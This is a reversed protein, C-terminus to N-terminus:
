LDGGLPRIVVEEMMASEGTLLIATVAQAIEDAPMMRTNDVDADGWILTDTAGPMLSTVRIGHKRAEMRLVDTFGLLGYKSACYGANNYYPTRGAVSVMNIIHGSKREIMGPLVAQSCLFAGKVNTEMMLDWDSESTDVIKGFIAVGANNVLVEIPGHTREVAVVVRKVQDPHRVDCPMAVAQGGQNTIEQAVAEIDSITRASLVLHAGHAALSLAIARGIGRGSGTVWVIRGKLDLQSM